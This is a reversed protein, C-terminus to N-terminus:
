KHFKKVLKKSVAPYLLRTQLILPHFIGDWDTSLTSVLERYSAPVQVGFEPDRSSCLQKTKETKWNNSEM